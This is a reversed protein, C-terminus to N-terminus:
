RHRVSYTGSEAVFMSPTCHVRWRDKFISYLGAAECGFGTMPHLCTRVATYCCVQSRESACPVACSMRSRIVTLLQSLLHAEHQADFHLMYLWMIPPRRVADEYNWIWAPATCVMLLAVLDFTIQVSSIFICWCLRAYCM